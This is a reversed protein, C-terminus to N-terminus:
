SEFKKVLSVAGDKDVFCLGGEEQVAYVCVNGKPEKLGWEHIQAPDNSRMKLPSPVLGGNVTKGTVEKGHSFIGSVDHPYCPCVKWGRGTLPLAISEFFTPSAVKKKRKADFIAGILQDDNENFLGLGLEEPEVTALDIEKHAPTEWVPPEVVATAVATQPAPKAVADAAMVENLRKAAEFYDRSAKSSLDPTTASM